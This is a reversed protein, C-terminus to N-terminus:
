DDGLRERLVMLARRIRSKVTGLPLGEREAVESYSLGELFAARLVHAAAEDLDDVERLVREGAESQVLQDDIPTPANDERSILYKEGDLTNRRTRARARDIATNRAIMAMWPWPPGKARHYGAARNWIKLYVEQLVDEAAERNKVIGLCIVFLRTRTAEFLAQLAAVENAAVAELQSALADNSNDDAM